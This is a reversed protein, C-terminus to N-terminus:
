PTTHQVRYKIAALVVIGSRANAATEGMEHIRVRESGVGIAALVTRKKDLADSMRRYAGVVDPDFDPDVRWWEPGGDKRDGVVQVELIDAELRVGSVALWLESKM